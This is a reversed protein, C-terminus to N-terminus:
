DPDYAGPPQHGAGARGSQGCSRQRQDVIFFTNALLLGVLFAAVIWIM